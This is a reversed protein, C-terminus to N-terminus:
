QLLLSALAQVHRGNYLLKGKEVAETAELYNGQNFAKAAHNFYQLGALQKLDVSEFGNLQLRYFRGPLQTYEEVQKLHANIINEDDIFGQNPNTAEFLVPKGDAETSILVHTESELIKVEYGLAHLQWAYLASASLCNYKGSEFISYFDTYPTYFDLFKRHTRKFIHKLFAREDKYRRKVKRYHDIEAQLTLRISTEETTTLTNRTSLLWSLMDPATQLREWQVKKQEIPKDGPGAGAQVSLGIGTLLIFVLFTYSCRIM